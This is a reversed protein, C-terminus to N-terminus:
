VVAARTRRRHEFRVADNLLGQPASVVLTNTMDDVGVSLMGKFRPLADKGFLRLKEFLLGKTFHHSKGTLMEQILDPSNVVTVTKPGATIRVIPGYARLRQLFALRDRILPLAHGILPLRGPAIPPVHIDAVVTDTGEAEPGHM